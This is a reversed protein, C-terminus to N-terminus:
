SKEWMQQCNKYHNKEYNESNQSPGVCNKNLKQFDWDTRTQKEKVSGVGAGM